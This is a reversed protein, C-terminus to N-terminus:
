CGFNGLGNPLLLQIKEKTSLAHYNSKKRRLYCIVAVTVATLAITVLVLHLLIFAIWHSNDSSWFSWEEEEESYDEEDSEKELYAKREMSNERPASFVLSLTKPQIRRECLHGCYGDFCDCVEINEDQGHLCRAKAVVM